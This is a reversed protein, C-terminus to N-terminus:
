YKTKKNGLRLPPIPIHHMELLLMLHGPLLSRFPIILHQLVLNLKNNEQIETSEM